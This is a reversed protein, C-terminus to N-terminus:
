RGRLERQDRMARELQEPRQDEGLKDNSQERKESEDQNVAAFRGKM